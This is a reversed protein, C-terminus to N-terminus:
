PVRAASPGGGHARANRALNRLAQDASGGRGEIPSAAPDASHPGPLAWDRWSEDPDRVLGGLRWGGPLSAEAEIWVLSLGTPPIPV